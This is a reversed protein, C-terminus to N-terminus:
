SAPQHALTEGAPEEQTSGGSRVALLAFIGAFVLMGLGLYLVGDASHTHGVIMGGVYPAVAAGIAGPASVLAIGGAASNKPLYESALAFFLPVVATLGIFAISLMALSAVLNGTFLTTVGLFLASVWCMVAFHWRRERKRDSHWGLWLMGLGGVAFPIAVYVGVMFLSKVGWSHVVTPLWFLVAYAAGLGLFYVLGLLWVRYDRLSEAFSAHRGGQVTGKDAAIAETLHQRDQASLWPANTPRDPLVFFMLIGIVIAPVGEILFLWQWGDVGLFGHTFQLIAGSIPGALIAAITVAFQLLSIARARRQAPYWYTFYLVMGPFFGAEFVGLLFRLIYFSGPGNMLAMASACLGWLVVIVTLTRRAGVKELTLNSPVQFLFYGIFFIGAGAGYVQDTFNLAHKLELQAFGVNIRDVFDLGYGIMFLPLIRWGIRAFLERHAAHPAPAAGFSPAATSNSM